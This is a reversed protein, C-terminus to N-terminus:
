PFGYIKSERERERSWRKIYTHKKERERIRIDRERLIDKRERKGVIM